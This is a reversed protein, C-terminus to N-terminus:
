GARGTAGWGPMTPAACSPKLGGASSIGPWRRLTPGGCPFVAEMGIAALNRERYARLDELFIDGFIVHGIGESKAKELVAGMQREYDENTGESVWAKLLPIGISEAQRDLLEERTGHMSVRRFGANLTTLLYRVDFQNETLVRDLCYASDKGGSWCFIAGPRKDM